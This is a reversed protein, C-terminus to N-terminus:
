RMLRAHCDGVLAHCVFWVVRLRMGLMCPARLDHWIYLLTFKCAAPMSHPHLLVLMSQSCPQLAM